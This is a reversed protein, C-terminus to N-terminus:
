QDLLDGQYPAGLEGAVSEMMGSLVKRDREDSTARKERNLAIFTRYKGLRQQTEKQERAAFIGGAMEYEHILDDWEEQKRELFEAGTENGGARVHNPNLTNLYAAVRDLRIAVMKRRQGAGPFDVTCTGLRKALGTDAGGKEPACGKTVKHRQTDWKLGFVEVLPKLPVVERGHEDKEVPLIAGAFELSMMVRCM